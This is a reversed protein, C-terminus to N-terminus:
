YEQVTQSPPKVTESFVVQMKKPQPLGNEVDGGGPVVSALTIGGKVTRFGSVANRWEAPRAKFSKRAGYFPLLAIVSLLISMYWGVQLNHLAGWQLTDGRATIYAGYLAAPTFIVLATFICGKLVFVEQNWSDANNLDDSARIVRWITWLNYLQLTLAGVYLFVVVQGVPCLVLFLQWVGLVPLPSAYERVSGTFAYEGSVAGPAEVCAPGKCQWRLPHTRNYSGVTSEPPIAYPDSANPPPFAASGEIRNIQNLDSRSCNISSAYATRALPLFFANDVCSKICTECQANVRCKCTLKEMDRGPNSDPYSTMLNTNEIIYLVGQEFDGQAIKLECQQVMKAQFYIGQELALSDREREVKLLSRLDRIFISEGIVCMTDFVASMGSTGAHVKELATVDPVLGTNNVPLSCSPCTAFRPCSDGAIGTGIRTSCSPHFPSNIKRNLREAVSLRPSCGATLLAKGGPTCTVNCGFDSYQMEFVDDIWGALARCQPLEPPALPDAANGLDLGKGNWFDITTICLYKPQQQIKRDKLPKLVSHCRPESLDPALHVKLIVTMVGYISLYTTFSANICHNSMSKESNPLGLVMHRGFLSFDEISISTRRVCQASLSKSDPNLWDDKVVASVCDDGTRGIYNSDMLSSLCDQIKVPNRLPNGGEEIWYDAQLCVARDGVACTSQLTMLTTGLCPSSRDVLIARLMEADNRFYTGFFVQNLDKLFNSLEAFELKNNGNGDIFSFTPRVRELHNGTSYSIQLWPLLIAAPIVGLLLIQTLSTWRQFTTGNYWLAVPFCRLIGCWYARYDKRRPM